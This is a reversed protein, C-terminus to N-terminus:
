VMDEFSPDYVADRNVTAQDLRAQDYGPIQQNVGRECSLWEQRADQWKGRAIEDATPDPAKPVTLDLVTGQAVFFPKATAPDNGLIFARVTRELDPKSGNYRFSRKFSISPTVQNEVVVVTEVFDALVPSDAATAKWDSLPM